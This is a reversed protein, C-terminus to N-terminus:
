NREHQAKVNNLIDRLAQFYGERYEESVDESKIGREMQSILHIVM